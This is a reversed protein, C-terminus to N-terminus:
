FAVGVGATFNFVEFNLATAGGSIIVPGFRQILGAGLEVGSYSSETSEAWNTGTLADGEYSYENVEAIYNQVGYGAGGYIFTDWGLQFTVGVLASVAAYQTNGSFEYYGPQNFDDIYDGTYIYSSENGFGPSMRGEIYFGTKGLLGARAGFPTTLNGAYQVFFNKELEKEVTEARVDFVLEENTMPLEKLMDWTISHAGGKIGKGVDGSVEQLPGQWTQGNDRSVYLSVNFEQYFKAGTINYGVVIKDGALRSRISTINQSFGSFGALLFAIFLFQKHQMNKKKKKL